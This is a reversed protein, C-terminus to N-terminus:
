GNNMAKIAELMPIHVPLDLLNEIDHTIIPLEQKNNLNCTRVIVAKNNLAM